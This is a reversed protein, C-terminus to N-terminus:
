AEDSGWFARIGAVGQAGCDWAAALDQATLGGLLYVPMATEDLLARAREWGLVAAGPHSATPLVPSLVAFDVGIAVAHQLEDANHCSASLWLQAPLPREKLKMLRAANLHVGAAGMAHAVEPEANLLLKAGAQQCEALAAQILARYETESHNPAGRLQILRFGNALAARLRQLFDAENEFEGTILYREPLRVANVIPRDAAPMPLSALDDPQLWQLAQGERGHPEGHFAVTKWVDLLVSRDPYHHTVRLLPRAQQLAIGLEEALERRLGESPTEGPELKGGPFEWLGGQHADEPRLTVLVRGRDDFIAAAAVHIVPDSAM